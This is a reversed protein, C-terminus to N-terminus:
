AVSEHLTNMTQRPLPFSSREITGAHSPLRRPSKGQQDHCAPWFLSLEEGDRLSQRAAAVAQRWDDACWIESWGCAGADALESIASQPLAGKAAAIILRSRQPQRRILSPLRGAFNRDLVLVTAGPRLVRNRDLADWAARLEALSEYHCIM